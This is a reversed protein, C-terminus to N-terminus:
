PRSFPTWREGRQGTQGPGGDPLRPPFKGEFEGKITPAEEAPQMERGKRFRVVVGGRVPSFAREGHPNALPKAEKKEWDKREKATASPEGREKNL